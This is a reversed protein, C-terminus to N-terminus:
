FFGVKPPDIGTNDTKSILTEYFDYGTLKGQTTLLHFDKLVDFTFATAPQHPTAPFLGARLLQNRDSRDGYSEGGYMACKCFAVNLKHFGNTHVITVPRGLTALRPCPQGNHGLHM